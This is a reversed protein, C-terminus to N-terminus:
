YHQQYPTWSAHNPNTNMILAMVLEEDLKNFQNFEPANAMSPQCLSYKDPEQRIKLIKIIFLDAFEDALQKDTNFTPSPNEPKHGTLHNVLQLLKNSDSGCEDIKNSIKVKKNEVVISEYQRRSHLYAQWFAENKYRM